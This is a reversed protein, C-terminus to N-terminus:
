ACELEGLLFFIDNSITIVSWGVSDVLVLSVIEDRLSLCLFTTKMMEPSKLRGSM